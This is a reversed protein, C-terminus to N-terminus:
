ELVSGHIKVNKIKVKTRRKTKDEVQDMLKSIMRPNYRYFSAFGSRSNYLKGCEDAASSLRKVEQEDFILGAKCANDIMWLGPVLALSDDPYGGGVNTHMGAFWVQEPPEDRLDEKKTDNEDQVENWLVPHFSLREDDLALAHCAIKVKPSLNTDQFRHPYVYRDLLVSLEDVPLGVADVTDFVGLFKIEPIVGGAYYENFNEPRQPAKLFLNRIRRGIWVLARGKYKTRYSRYAERVAAKLGEDTDLGVDHHSLTTWRWVRVKKKPDRDIIGCSVVLGALTRVTFAGRSFGFMFIEDNNGGDYHRCLQEYLERVNRALGWGFVGSVLRLPSFRSTGVGDDYFARQNGKSLNLACYIRWVNTKSIKAASNGTGDSLLVINKKMTAAGYLCGHTISGMTNLFIFNM